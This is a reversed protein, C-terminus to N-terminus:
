SFDMASTFYFSEFQDFFLWGIKFKALFPTTM